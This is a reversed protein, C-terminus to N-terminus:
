RRGIAQSYLEKQKKYKEKAENQIRKVESSNTFVDALPTVSNPDVRKKREEIVANHLDHTEDFQIKDNHLIHLATIANQSLNAKTQLQEFFAQQGKEPTVGAQSLKAVGISLMSNLLKDAFEQEQPKLGSRLFTEVPLNVNFSLGGANMGIGAQLSSLIQNWLNGGGRLMNFVKDALIPKDEILSIASDFHNALADHNAGVVLDGWRKLIGAWKDEEMKANAAWVRQVEQAEPDSLKSIDPFPYTKPYRGERQSEVPQEKKGFDVDKTVRAIYDTPDKDKFGGYAALAKNWDGNNDKLLKQLYQDAAMRSENEDFPNFKIGQKHLMQVTEPLFQYPGMAKTDANIAFPDTGSEVSRLNDLLKAPTVFSYEPKTGAASGPVEAPSAAPVEAPAGAPSVPQAPTGIPPQRGLPTASELMKLRAAYEGKTIAGSEYQGRLIQLAQGQQEIFNKQQEYVSTVTPSQPAKARWEMIKEAPPMQGPRGEQWQEIEQTVAQNANLLLTTQALQARMQAIPLQQERQKEVTEGLAESASGLSALFGGLQPKAFGAAVRFWNPEKYRNELAQLAEQQARRLEKLQEDDAGYLPLKSQQELVGSLGGVNQSPNTAM